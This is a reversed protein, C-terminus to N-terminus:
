RHRVSDVLLLLRRGFQGRVIPKGMGSASRLQSVGPVDALAESLGKGRAKELAAGSLTTASRMDIADPAKDEVVIVESQQDLEIEISVGTTGITLTRRDVMYDAREIALEVAGGCATHLSFRGGDDTTALLENATSVTAGAVPEHTKRDVVHGDVSATCPAQEVPPVQASAGRSAVVLSCLITLVRQM